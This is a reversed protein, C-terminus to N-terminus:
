GHEFYGCMRRCADEGCVCVDEGWVCVDEGGGWVCLRNSKTETGAPQSMQCSSDSRTPPSWRALLGPQM